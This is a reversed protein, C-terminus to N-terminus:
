TLYNIQWRTNRGSGIRRVASPSNIEMEELAAVVSRLPLGLLSAILRASYNGPNRRFFLEARGKATAGYPKPM